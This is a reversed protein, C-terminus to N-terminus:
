CLSVKKNRKKELAAQSADIIGKAAQKENFFHLSKLAYDSFSNWSKETSIIELVGKAWKKADPELVYGNKGHKVLDDACGAYPTSIVPTGAALAENAVVGWADLKTTFLFVKSSAYYFPLEEYPLLGPYYYDINAQDLRSIMKEQLPGNGVILAKVKPYKKAIETVVDVFFLPMKRDYIQGAFMVDYQRNKFPLYKSFRENDAFLPSFYIKDDKAGYSKYLEATKKGPGIYTHTYSFVLKRILVHLPTLQADNLKWGEIWVIHKKRFLLAYLWAYLHTPNFGNIIVVDPKLRILHKWIDRNNHVFHRQDGTKKYNDKLYIHNHNTIEYKWGRLPEKNTCYIATFNVGFTSSLEGFVPNRYPAPVAIVAVVKM